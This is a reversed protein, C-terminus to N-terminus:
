ETATGPTRHGFLLVPLPIAENGTEQLKQQQQVKGVRDPVLAM